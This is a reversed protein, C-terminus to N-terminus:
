EGAVAPETITPPVGTSDPPIAAVLPPPAVRTKAGFPIGPSPKARVTDGAQASAQASGLFMPLRAHGHLVEYGGAFCVIAILVGVLMWGSGLRQEDDVLDRRFM